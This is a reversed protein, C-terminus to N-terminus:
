TVHVVGIAGAYSLGKNANQSKVQNATLYSNVYHLKGTNKGGCNDVATVTVLHRHM